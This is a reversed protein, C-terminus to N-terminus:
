TPSLQPPFSQTCSHNNDTNDPLQQIHIHDCGCCYRWRVLPRQMINNNFRRKDASTKTYRFDPLNWGIWFLFATFAWLHTNPAGNKTYVYMDAHANNNIRIPLNVLALICPILLSLPEVSQKKYHTPRVRRGCFSKNSIAFIIIKRHALSIIRSWM